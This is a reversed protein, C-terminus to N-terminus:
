KLRWEYPRRDKVQLGALGDRARILSRLFLRLTAPSISGLSASALMALSQLNWHLSKRTIVESLIRPSQGAWLHMSSVMHLSALEQDNSSHGNEVSEVARGGTVFTTNGSHYRFHYLVDPATVVRGLKTMRFFFDQDEGGAFEEGYGGVADFAERRFMASGHPFPIYRSYRVTRWRDRPRTRRGEADIGDCLTGVVVVDPNSKLIEWQRKLRDPHAIDDADMRAVIPAVAKSVVLNSSGPLGLNRESTFVRIRSDRQEWERLVKGSGDTSGDDLIIFEFAEFTQRIISAISENLFPRANYVPMVVSLLPGDKIPEM